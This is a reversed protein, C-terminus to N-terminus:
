TNLEKKEEESPEEAQPELPISDATLVKQSEIKVIDLEDSVKEAEPEEVDEAAAEKLQEEKSEIEADINKIYSFDPEFLDSDLEGNEILEIM